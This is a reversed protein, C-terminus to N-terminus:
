FRTFRKKREKLKLIIMAFFIIRVSLADKLNIISCLKDYSIRRGLNLEFFIEEVVPNYDLSFEIEERSNLDGRIPLVSFFLMVMLIDIM